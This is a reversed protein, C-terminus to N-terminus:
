SVIDIIRKEERPTHVLRNEVTKDILLLLIEPDTADGPTYRAYVDFWYRQMHPSTYTIGRWLVNDPIRSSHCEEVWSSLLPAGHSRLPLVTDVARGEIDKMTIDLLALANANAYLVETEGTLVVLPAPLHDLLTNLQDVKGNQRSGVTVQTLHKHLSYVGDLIEITAERGLGLLEPYPPSTSTSTPALHVLGTRLVAFPRTLHEAHLYAYVVLSITSILVGCLMRLGFSTDLLGLLAFALPGVAILLLVWLLTSLMLSSRLRRLTRPLAPSV